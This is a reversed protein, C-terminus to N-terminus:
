VHARGIKQTASTLASMSVGTQGAIYQLRQVDETAISMQESMKETESGWAITAQVVQGIEHVAAALPLATAFTSFASGVEGATSNLEQLQDVAKTVADSFASFDADFKATIAM